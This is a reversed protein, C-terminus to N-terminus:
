QLIYGISCFTIACSKCEGFDERERAVRRAIVYYNFKSNNVLPEAIQSGTVFQFGTNTSDTMAISMDVNAQQPENRRLTFEILAGSSPHKGGCKFRTVLAGHPLYVPAFMTHSGSFIRGTGTENGDYSNGDSRDSMPTFASSPIAVFSMESQAAAIAPVILLLMVLYRCYYKM